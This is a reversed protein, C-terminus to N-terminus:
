KNTLLYFCIAKFICFFAASDTGTAVSQIDMGADASGGSFLAEKGILTDCNIVKRNRLQGSGDSLGTNCSGALGVRVRM